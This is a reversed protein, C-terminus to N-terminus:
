KKMLLMAYDYKLIVGRLKVRSLWVWLLGMARLDDTNKSIDGLFHSLNVLFRSKEDAFPPNQGGYGAM